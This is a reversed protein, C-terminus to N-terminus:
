NVLDLAIWEIEFQQPVNVPDFRLQSINDGLDARPLFAWYIHTAGDAKLPMTYSHEESWPGEPRRWFWQSLLGPADTGQPYRAAFRLRLFRTDTANLDISLSPSFLQPDADTSANVLGISPTCVRNMNVAHWADVVVPDCSRFDWVILHAGSNGSTPPPAEATIGLVNAVHFRAEEPTYSFRMAFADRETTLIPTDRWNDVQHTHPKDGNAVFNRDCSFCLHFVNLGTTVRPEDDIFWDMERPAQPPRPPPILRLLEANYSRAQVSTVHWANLHIWSAVVGLLLVLAFSVGVLSRGWTSLRGAFSVLLAGLAACYGICSFYLFRSSEFTIINVGLNLVPVITLLLWAFALLLLRRNERGYLTLGALILVSSLLGVVQVIAPDILTSNIPSLLARGFDIFSIWVFNLYNVPAERYNGIRGWTVLRLALNAALILCFPSLAWALDLWRRGPIARDPPRAIWASIAILPIFTLLMEYTFLGVTYCLISGVYLLISRSRPADTTRWWKSFLWLSLLGYLAAWLNWQAALWGIAEAHIPYVAFLAGAIWGTWRVRTIEALWLGLALAVGSHVLLGIVHYPVPNYGWLQWGVRWILLTGLPRYFWWQPHPMLVDAAIGEVKAEHLMHLDDALFDVTIAPLYAILALLPVLAWYWVRFRFLIPTQIRAPFADPPASASM